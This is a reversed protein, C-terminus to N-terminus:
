CQMVNNYQIPFLVFRKRTETLLPEEKLKPVGVLDDIQLNKFDLDQMPQFISLFIKRGIPVIDCVHTDSCSGDRTRSIM